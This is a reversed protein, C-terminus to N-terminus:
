EGSQRIYQQFIRAAVRPYDDSLLGVAYLLYSKDIFPQPNRPKLIQWSSDRQQRRSLIRDAYPNYVFIGGTGILTLIERLDKGHQLWLEGERTYIRELKGVHRELALDVAICALTADAAYYWSEQPIYSTEENIKKIYGILEEISINLEPFVTRFEGYLYEAGVRSLINTANYRIGLDGEVTRKAFSEPLGRPLTSKEPPKGWGISHVDTTAGGVDLVVLEGCGQDEPTGQSGLLAGKLVALPTPIVVPLLSRIQDLGKALIIREMFLRRIEERASEVSIKGPQPMVNEARRAEKGAQALTLCAQDAAACNGAVIFPATLCSQSLIAANHLITLFDGGDTGGTLLIMDPNLSEIKKIERETLNFSFSGILKAGAGLAASNAAEVTLGPVLGVVAMRLGGAASSSALVTKGDLVDLDKPIKHFLSYHQHLKGLARLLGERVDTLVTSPSQATGVIRATKLNIAAIKTFTSGFDILIALSSLPFGDM